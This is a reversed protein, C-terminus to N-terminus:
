YRVLLIVGRRVLIARGELQDKSKRLEEPMEDIDAIVFHNPIVHGHKNFWFLSIRTLLKGKGTDPIGIVLDNTCLHRSIIVHLVSDYVYIRDTAVFLLRDPSSTRPVPKDSNLDGQWRKHLVRDERLM